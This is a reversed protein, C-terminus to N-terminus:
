GDDQVFEGIYFGLNDVFSELDWREIAMGNSGRELGGFTQFSAM